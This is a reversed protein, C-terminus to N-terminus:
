GRCRWRTWERHTETYSILIVDKLYTPILRNQPL